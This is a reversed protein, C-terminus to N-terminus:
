MLFVSSFSVVAECSSASISSKRLCRGPSGGVSSPAVDM